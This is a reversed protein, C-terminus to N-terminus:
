LYQSLEVLNGDPDRLYISEMKGLAGHRIVLGLEVPYGKSEIHAKVAEMNGDATIILCLDLSGSTPYKAAPLFEAPKTHINFKQNGFRLAYRQNSTDLEMGLIRVYFDICQEVDATTIVLHDLNKIKM